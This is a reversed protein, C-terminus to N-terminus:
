PEPAARALAPQERAREGGRRQEGTAVVRRFELIEVDGAIRLEAGVERQGVGGALHAREGVELAARDHHEEAVCQGSTHGVV